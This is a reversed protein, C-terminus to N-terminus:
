LEAAFEGSTIELLTHVPGLRNCGEEAVLIQARKMMRKPAPGPCRRRYEALAVPTLNARVAAEGDNGLVDQRGGGTKAVSATPSCWGLQHLDACLSAALM